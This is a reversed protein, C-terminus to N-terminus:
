FMQNDIDGIVTAQKKNYEEDADSLLAGQYSLDLAMILSDARDDHQISKTGLFQIQEALELMEPRLHIEGREFAPEHMELRAVKDKMVGGDKGRPQIATIPINRDDEDLKPDVKKFSILESKWNLMIQYVSVQTMLKEIGVKWCGAKHRQWMKLVAVAQQVQGGQGAQQELVYRHPDGDMYGVCTVAFEDADKDEGSQPDLTIVKRMRGQPAQTYHNETIWISKIRALTEDTPDNLYETAFRRTGIVKALAALKQKSFMQPWIAEDNEIARRFIGGFTNYFILVEAEKHLVTGIMKIRGRRPDKGPFIVGYLWNKLKERMDANGVEEDTEVDDIIIKTPRQNRINTGRGKNKGRAVLNVGNTTEIHRNTWKRGVLSDPPVLDGYYSQLLTNTELEGKIGNFHNQAMEATASIYLIVPEIAYVIDHLTDIKEWTSKAHGRPFIIGSDKDASLERILDLHAEPAEYEGQIIQPFFFRGFIHLMEKPRLSDRVFKITDEKKRISEQLDKDWEAYTFM